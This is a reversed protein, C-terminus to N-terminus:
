SESPPPPPPTVNSTSFLPALEQLAMARDWNAMGPKWVYTEANILGQQIYTKMSNLDLPGFQQNNYYVYYQIEARPPPPVSNLGTNMQNGIQGMQNGLKPGLAFGMGLGMAAGMLDSGTGENAAAKDMVDMSRDFSYVDKGVTDIHMRKETAKKLAIVSSDDEPVNISMIFFNVLNFGFREFQPILHEMIEESLDQLLSSIKLISVGKIAVQEAIIDSARTVILGAFYSTLERNTFYQLTGILSEFVIRPNKVQIGYQGFARVPVVIGYKPDELLVPKVTGWKSDLKMLTSIFWVEAQFPSQNGFPLNILKDLLPLNNSRITYTGETFEDYIRGSRCFFAVQGTRVILQSGLRLNEQPFKWAIEDIDVDHKIVTFMSM